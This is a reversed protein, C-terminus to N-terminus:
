QLETTQLENELKRYLRTVSGRKTTAMMRWGSQKSNELRFVAETDIDISCITTM